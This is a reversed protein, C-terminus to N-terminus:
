IIDKIDLNLVSCIKKLIIVDVKIQGSEVKSIYSQSANLKKAVEGQTIGANIRTKKLKEVLEKHEVDYLTM